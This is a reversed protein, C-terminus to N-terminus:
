ERYVISAPDIALAKMVMFNNDEKSLAHTDNNVSLATIKFSVAKKLIDEWGGLRSADVSSLIVSGFVDPRKTSFALPFSKKKEQQAPSWGAGDPAPTAWWEHIAATVACAAEVSEADDQKDPATSLELPPSADKKYFKDSPQRVRM